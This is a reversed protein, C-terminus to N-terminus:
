PKVKECVPCHGDAQLTAGDKPCYVQEAKPEGNSPIGKPIYTPRKPIYSLPESDSDIGVQILTLGSKALPKKGKVSNCSRCAVVLNAVTSPGKPDLHDYTAGAAGRKDSWNVVQGCYRCHDGDRKRVAVITGDAYADRMTRMREADKEKRQIWRGAYEQWDHIHRSRDIFRAETLSEVLLKADGTFGCGKAIQRDSFKSLDGDQAYDIAWWWLNLLLGVSALDSVDNPVSGNFLLEALRDKKPHDRLSQHAELWSM